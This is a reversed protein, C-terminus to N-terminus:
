KFISKETVIRFKMNRKRCYDEAARWKAMNIAATVQEVLRYKSNARPARTQSAPKCEIIEEIIEGHKNRFKVYYDPYYRHVRGDTPKIYPIVFSEYGWQIVNPNNDFFQHLQLEYSSRYPIRYTKGIYKAQNKVNYYDQKYKYAM